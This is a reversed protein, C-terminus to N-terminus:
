KNSFIPDTTTTVYHAGQPTAYLLDEGKQFLQLGALDNMAERVTAESLNENAYALKLVHGQGLSGQYSLNLTKM